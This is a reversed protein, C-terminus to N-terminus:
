KASKDFLAKQETVWDQLSILQQSVEHYTQYNKSIITTAESLKLSIPAANEANFRAVVEPSATKDDIGKPTGSVQSAAANLSRVFGFPLQFKADSEATIYIPVEKVITEGKEKVIKVRDIYETVVKVTVEASKTELQAIKLKDAAVEAEWKENAANYGVFTLGIALCIVSAIKVIADYGLPILRGLFVSVLSGGIGILLLIQFVFDPLWEFLFTM